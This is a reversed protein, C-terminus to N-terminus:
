GFDCFSFDRQPYVRECVSHAGEFYVVTRVVNAGSLSRKGGLRGAVCRSGESVVMVGGMNARVGGGGEVRCPVKKESVPAESVGGARLVTQEGGGRSTKCPWMSVGIGRSVQEEGPQVLLRRAVRRGIHDVALHSQAKGSVHVAPGVLVAVNRARPGVVVRRGLQVTIARHVHIHGRVVSGPGEKPVHPLRDLLLQDALPDLRLM